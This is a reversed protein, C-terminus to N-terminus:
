LREASPESTSPTQESLSRILRWALIPGFLFIVALTLVRDLSAALFAHEVRFGFAKAVLAVASERIGLGAPTLNLLVSPLTLCAMLGFAASPLRQDFHLLLFALKLRLMEVACLAVELGLLQLFCRTDRFINQFSEHMAQVSRPLRPAPVFAVLLSVLIMLSLVMGLFRTAPERNEIALWFMLGLAAQALVMTTYTGFLVTMYQTSPFQYRKKLYAGRAAAGAQLPLYNLVSSAASLQFAETVPIKLDLHRLLVRLKQGNILWTAITLLLWAALGKPSLHLFDNVSIGQRRLLWVFLAIFAAMLLPAQVRRRTLLWKM